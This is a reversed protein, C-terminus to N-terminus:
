QLCFVLKINPLGNINLLNKAFLQKIKLTTILKTTKKLNRRKNYANIRKFSLQRKQQVKNEQM